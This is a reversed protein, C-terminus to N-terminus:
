KQTTTTTTTKRRQTLIKKENILREILLITVIIVGVHSALAKYIKLCLNPQWEETANKNSNNINIDCLHLLQSKVVTHIVVLSKITADRFSM